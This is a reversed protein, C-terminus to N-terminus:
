ISRKTISHWTACCPVCSIGRWSCIVAMQGMLMELSIYSGMTVLFDRELDFNTKPTPLEFPLIRIVVPVEGLEQEAHLLKVAGHYIGPESEASSQVTLMFTTFCGSNLTVPQLSDADRFSPHMAKFVTPVRRYDAYPVDMDRPPNIWEYSVNGDDGYIRAYNATSAEDVRILEEDNVLLEPVLKFGTDGFYSYWANRNQYWIKVLKLDLQHPQLRAGSAAKFPTLRFEVKGLDRLPYITFAGPEYEGQAMVIRVPAAVEGDVPYAEHLRQMESLPPVAYHVHSDVGEEGVLEAAVRVANIALKRQEPASKGAFRELHSRLAASKVTAMLEPLQKLYCQEQYESLLEVQAVGRLSCVVGFWLAVGAIRIRM